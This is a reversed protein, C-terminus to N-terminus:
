TWWSLHRISKRIEEALTIVRVAPRSVLHRKGDRDEVKGNYPNFVVDIGDITSVIMVREKDYIVKWDVVREIEDLGISVTDMSARSASASKDMSMSQRDKRLKKRRDPQDAWKRKPPDPRKEVESLNKHMTNGLALLHSMVTQIREGAKRTLGRM